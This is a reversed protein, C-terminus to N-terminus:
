NHQVQVAPVAVPHSRSAAREIVGEQWEKDKQWCWILVVIVLTCIILFKMIQVFNALFIFALIIGLTAGFAVFLAHFM